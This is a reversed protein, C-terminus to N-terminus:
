GRALLEAMIDAFRERLAENDKMMRTVEQMAESTRVNAFDKVAVDLAAFRLEEYVASVDSVLEWAVTNEDM